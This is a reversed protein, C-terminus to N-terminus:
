SWGLPVILKLILLSFREQMLFVINMPIPVASNDILWM